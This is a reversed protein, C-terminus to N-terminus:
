ILVQLNNESGTFMTFKLIKIISLEHLSQEIDLTERTLQWKCIQLSYLFAGDKLVTRRYSIM